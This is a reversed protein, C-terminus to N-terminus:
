FFFRWFLKVKKFSELTIDVLSFKRFFFRGRKRFERKWAYYIYIYIDKLIERMRM